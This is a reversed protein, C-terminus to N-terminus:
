SFCSYYTGTWLDVSVETDTFASARPDLSEAVPAAGEERSEPSTPSMKRFPNM